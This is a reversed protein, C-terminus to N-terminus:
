NIVSSRHLLWPSEDSIVLSAQQIPLQRANTHSRAAAQMVIGLVQPLHDMKQHDEVVGRLHQTSSVLRSCAVASWCEDLLVPHQQLLEAGVGVPLV